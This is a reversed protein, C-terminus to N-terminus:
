CRHPLSSCAPVLFRVCLCAVAHSPPARSVCVCMDRICGRLAAGLQETMQNSLAMFTAKNVALKTVTKRMTVIEKAIIKM